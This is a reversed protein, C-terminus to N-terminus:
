LVAQSAKIDINSINPLNFNHRKNKLLSNLILHCRSSIWGELIDITRNYTKFISMITYINLLEENLLFVQIKLIILLLQYSFFFVKAEKLM